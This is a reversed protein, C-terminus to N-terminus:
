YPHSIGRICPSSRIIKDPPKPRRPLEFFYPPPLTKSSRVRLTSKSANSKTRLQAKIMSMEKSPSLNDFRNKQQQVKDTSKTYKYIYPKRTVGLPDSFTEFNEQLSSTYVDFDKSVQAADGKFVTSNNLVNAM